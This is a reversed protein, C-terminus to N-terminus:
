AALYNKLEELPVPKYNTCEVCLNAYLPDLENNLLTVKKYHTHGHLNAKCWKPISDRHIPYHSMIYKDFKHTGRIDKFYKAYDDLKFIDHNGRILIKEGHLQALTEINKRKIAIDGLHYVKDKPKIISNWNEILCADMENCDNWPRVKTGDEKLFVCMGQHGFHTDSIFFVNKMQKIKVLHHHCSSHICKRM